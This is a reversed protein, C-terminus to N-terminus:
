ILDIARWIDVFGKHYSPWYDPDDPLCEKEDEWVKVLLRTNWNLRQWMEALSELVDKSYSVPDPSWFHEVPNKILIETRFFYFNPSGVFHNGVAMNRHIQLVKVPSAGPDLKLVAIPFATYAGREDGYYADHYWTLYPPHFLIVGSLVDDHAPFYDIGSTKYTGAPDYLLPEKTAVLRKGRVDHRDKTTFTGLFYERVKNEDGFPWISPSKWLIKQLHGWSLADVQFQPIREGLRLSIFVYNYVMTGLNIITEPVHKVIPGVRYWGGPVRVQDDAVKVVWKYLEDTSDPVFGFRSYDYFSPLDFQGTATGQPPFDPDVAKLMWWISMWSRPDRSAMWRGKVFRLLDSDPGISLRDPFRAWLAKLEPEYDDQETPFLPQVSDGVLKDLFLNAKAQGATQLVRLLASAWLYLIMHINYTHFYHDTERGSPQEKVRVVHTGAETIPVVFQATGGSVEFAALFKGDYRIEVANTTPLIDVELTIDKVWPLAMDSIDYYGRVLLKRLYAYM